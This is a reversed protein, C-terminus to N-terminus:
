REKLSAVVNALQQEYDLLGQVRSKIEPKLAFQDPEDSDFYQGINAVLYDMDLKKIHQAYELLKAKIASDKVKLNAFEEDDTTTLFLHLVRSNKITKHTALSSLFNTLDIRRSEVFSEDNRSLYSKEPLTPLVLGQYEDQQTLYSHLWEFDSFRRWVVYKQNSELLPINHPVTVIKFQTYSKMGFYGDSITEFKPISIELGDTAKYEEAASPMGFTAFEEKSEEYM